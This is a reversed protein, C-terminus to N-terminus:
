KLAQKIIFDFIKTKISKHLFFHIVVGLLLYFVAVIFFGYWTTGTIEGLWFALGLNLFLMFSAIVVFVITHPLLSSVIDSTKDLTKLKVVEYSTKGYDVAKELLSEILKETDEM